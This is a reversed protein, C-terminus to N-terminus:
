DGLTGSAADAVAADVRPLAEAVLEGPENFIADPLVNASLDRFKSVQWVGSVTGQVGGDDLQDIICDGVRVAAVDLTREALGMIAQDELDGVIALPDEIM